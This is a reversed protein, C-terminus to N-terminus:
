SFTENAREGSFGWNMWGTGWTSLESQISAPPSGLTTLDNARLAALLTPYYGNELCIANAQIGQSYSTFNQVGARNFDWSGPMLQTTNLLNYAAGGSASRTEFDTWGVVWYITDHSPTSDGIAKLLDAAWQARTYSTTDAPLVIPATSGSRRYGGQQSQGTSTSSGGLMNALAIVCVVLMSISLVLLTLGGLHRKQHHVASRSDLTQSGPLLKIVKPLSAECLEAYMLSAQRSVEKMFTADIVVADLPLDACYDPQDPEMLPMESLIGQVLFESQVLALSADEELALLEAEGLVLETDYSEPV